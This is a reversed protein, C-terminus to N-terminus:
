HKGDIGIVNPQEGTVVTVKKFRSKEVVVNKYQTSLYYTPWTDPSRQGICVMNVAQAMRGCNSRMMRQHDGKRFSQTGLFIVLCNNFM